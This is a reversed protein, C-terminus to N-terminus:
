CAGPKREAPRPMEGESARQVPVDREPLRPARLLTIKVRKWGGRSGVPRSLGGLRRLRGPIPCFGPEFPEWLRRSLEGRYSESRM